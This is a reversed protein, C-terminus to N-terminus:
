AEHVSHVSGIEAIGYALEAEGLRHAGFVQGPEDIL